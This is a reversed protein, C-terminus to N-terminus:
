EPFGFVIGRVGVIEVFKEPPAPFPSAEDIAKIALEDFSSDGSSNLIRRNTVYGKEDITVFVRAKFKGDAMWEPLSWHGKVHRDLDTLYAEYDIKNLGRLNSGASLVNGKLTKQKALNEAREKEKDSQVQEEIKQLAKIRNLAESKEDVSPASKGTKTLSPKEKQQAATQPKEQVPPKKIEPAAIAKPAERVKDPLAVMDVRIAQDLMLPEDAALIGKVSLFVVVAVHCGLSWIMLRKFAVPDEALVFAESLTRDLSDKM